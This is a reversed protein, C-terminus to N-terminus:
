GSAAEGGEFHARAEEVLGRLNELVAPKDDPGGHFSIDDYVADLVELLSFEREAEVAPPPPAPRGGGKPTRYVWTGDVAVFRPNLVLPLGALKQMPLLSVSFTTGATGIGHFMAGASFTGPRVDGKRITRPADYDVHWYVELRALPEDDAEDAPDPDPDAAQAHFAEVDPCWAYDAVFRVLRPYAAVAGFFQGLTLGPALRCEDRLRRLVERRKVRRTVTARRRGDWTEQYLGDPRIVTVSM